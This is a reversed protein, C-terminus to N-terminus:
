KVLLQDNGIASFNLLLWCDTLTDETSLDWYLNLVEASGFAVNKDAEGENNQLHWVEGKKVETKCWCEM